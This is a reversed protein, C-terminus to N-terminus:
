LQIGLYHALVWIVAASLVAILTGVGIDHLHNPKNTPPQPIPNEIKALAEENSRTILFTKVTECVQPFESAGFHTYAQPRALAASYVALKDKSLSAIAGSNISQRIESYISM